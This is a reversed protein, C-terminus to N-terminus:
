IRNENASSKVFYVLNIKVIMSFSIIEKAKHLSRHNCFVTTKRFDMEIISPSVAKFISIINWVHIDVTALFFFTKIRYFINKNWTHIFYLIAALFCLKTSSILDDRKQIRLKYLTPLTFYFISPTVRTEVNIPRM